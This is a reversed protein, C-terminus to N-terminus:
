PMPKSFFVGIKGCFIPSSRQFYHDYYQGRTKKLNQKKTKVNKKKKEAHKYM